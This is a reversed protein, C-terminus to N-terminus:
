RNSLPLKKQFNNKECDHRKPKISDLINSHLNDIRVFRIRKLMLYPNTTNLGMRFGM